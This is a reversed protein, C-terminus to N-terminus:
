DRKPLPIREVRVVVEEQLEHAPAPGDIHGYMWRVANIWDNISEAKLKQGGLDVEGSTAFKWLLAAVLEKNPAEGEEAKAALVASLSRSKLPRGSPNGSQGKRWKPM